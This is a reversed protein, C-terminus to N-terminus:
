KSKTKIKDWFSLRKARAKKLEQAATVYECNDAYRPCSTQSCCSMDQQNGDQFYPCYHDFPVYFSPMETMSVKNPMEIFERYICSKAVHSDDAHYSRTIKARVRELKHWARSAVRRLRYYEQCDAKFANWKQTFAAFM